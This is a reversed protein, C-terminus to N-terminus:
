ESFGRDLSPGPTKSKRRRWGLAAAMAPPFLLATSPLPVPAAPLNASYDLRFLDTAPVGDIMFEPDIYFYPDVTAIVEGAARGGSSRIVSATALMTVTTLSDPDSEMDFTYDLTFSSPSGDSYLVGNSAFGRPDVLAPLTAPTGHGQPGQIDLFAEGFLEGDGAADPVLQVSGFGGGHVPVTVVYNIDVVRVLAVYYVIMAEAYGGFDTRMRATATITRDDGLTSAEGDIFARGTTGTNWQQNFPVNGQLL